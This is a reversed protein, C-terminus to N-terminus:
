KFVSTRSRFMGTRAALAFMVGAASFKQDANRKNPLEYVRVDWGGSISMTGYM